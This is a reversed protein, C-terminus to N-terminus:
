PVVGSPIAAPLLSWTAEVLFNGNPLGHLATTCSVVIVGALAQNFQNLVTLSTGITALMADSLSGAIAASTLDASANAIKTNITVITSPGSRWGGVVLATGNTAFNNALRTARQPVILRGNWTQVVITGIAPM